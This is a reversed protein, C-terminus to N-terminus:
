ANAEQAGPVRASVIRQLTKKADSKEFGITNMAININDKKATMLMDFLHKGEPTDTSLKADIMTENVADVYATELEERLSEQAYEGAVDIHRQPKPEVVDDKIMNIGEDISREPNFM